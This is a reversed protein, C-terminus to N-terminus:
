ADEGPSSPVAVLKNETTQFNMVHQNKQRARGRYWIHDLTQKEVSVYIALLSHPGGIGIEAQLSLSPRLLPPREGSENNQKCAVITRQRSFTNPKDYKSTM